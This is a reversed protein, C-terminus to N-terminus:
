PAMHRLILFVTFLFIHDVQPMLEGTSTPQRTVRAGLEQGKLDLELAKGQKEHPGRLDMARSGVTGMVCRKIVKNNRHQQGEQLRPVEGLPAVQVGTKAEAQAEQSSWM